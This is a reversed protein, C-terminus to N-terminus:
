YIIDFLLKQFTVRNHFADPTELHKTLYNLNTFSTLIKLASWCYGNGIVPRHSHIYHPISGAQASTSEPVLTSARLASVSATSISQTFTPPHTHIHTSPLCPTHLLTPHPNHRGPEEPERVPYTSSFWFWVLTHDSLYFPVTLSCDFLQSRGFM